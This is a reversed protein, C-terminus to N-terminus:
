VFVVYCLCVCVTPQLLELVMIDEATGLSDPTSPLTGEPATISVWSCCAQNSRGSATGLMGILTLTVHREWSLAHSDWGWGIGAGGALAMIMNPSGQRQLERVWNKARNLSDASTIDYVIIAASAGRCAHWGFWV